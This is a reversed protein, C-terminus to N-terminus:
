NKKESFSTPHKDKWRTDKGFAAREAARSEYRIQQPQQIAQTKTQQESKGQSVSKVPAPTATQLSATKVAPVETTVKQVHVNNTTHSASKPDQQANADAFFLIFAIILVNKM